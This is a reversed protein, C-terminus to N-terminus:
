KPIWLALSFCQMSLNLLFLNLLNKFNLDSMSLVVLCTCTGLETEITSTEWCYLYTFIIAFLKACIPSGLIVSFDLNVVKPIRRHSELFNWKERWLQYHNYSRRLLIMIRNGEIKCRLYPCFCKSLECSGIMLLNWGEKWKIGQSTDNRSHLYPFELLYLM